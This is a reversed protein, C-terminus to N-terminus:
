TLSIEATFDRNFFYVNQMAITEGDGSKKPTGRLVIAATGEATMRRLILEVDSHTLTLTVQKAKM